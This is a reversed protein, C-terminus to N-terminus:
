EDHEDDTLNEAEQYVDKRFRILADFVPPELAVWNIVHERETSLVFNYGDFSVYLGDGLYEKQSYKKIFDKRKM